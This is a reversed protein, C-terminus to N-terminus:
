LQFKTCLFYSFFFRLTIISPIGLNTKLVKVKEVFQPGKRESKNIVFFDM